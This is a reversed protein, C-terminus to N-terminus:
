RRRGPEVGLRALAADIERYRQLRRRALRTRGGAGAQMMEAELAAREALLEKVEPAAHSRAGSTGGARRDHSVISQEERYASFNGPRYVLGSSEFVLVARAVRDVFYRDHSVFVVTGPYAGLASELSRRAEIDLHNTPEDLVLVNAGSVLLSAMALRCREGGSLEGVAKFVDDGRFQFSGLLSRAEGPLLGTVALLSDLVTAEDDLDSLDQRLVAVEVGHGWRIQGDDAEREGLLLRLLTTKGCGNPGLIALRDGSRVSLDLGSFLQKGGASGGLGKVVLVENGSAQAVEFRFRPSDVHRRRLSRSQEELRALMRGKSKAQKSRTGASFKAVFGRLQEIQERMQKGATADRLLQEEKQTVYATYNGEYSRLLGAEVEAVRRVLRDLFYRDHSVVVIAGQYGGLFGELWETAALDLHNTPEDLLLLDPASLLLRALAGRVREGGSFEAVDRGFDSSAFGLGTLAQAIRTRYEYGGAVEFRETLQGYARALSELDRGRAEPLSPDSMCTELQRLETEMETLEGFEALMAQQLTGECDLPKQQDLLGIAVGGAWEVQGADPEEVGAMIRLLTTKGEGNRGILGVRERHGIAVSLGRFVPVGAFAKGVDRLVVHAM